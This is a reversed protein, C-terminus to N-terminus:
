MSGTGMSPSSFERQIQEEVLRLQLKYSMVAEKNADKMAEAEILKFRKEAVDDEGKYVKSIMGIPMDKDRLRMWCARVAVNYDRDARAYDSATQRLMKICQDLKRRLLERESYLDQQM